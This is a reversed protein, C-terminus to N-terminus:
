AFGSFGSYMDASQDMSLGVADRGNFTFNIHSPDLTGDATANQSVKFLVTATLESQSYYVALPTSPLTVETSPLTMDYNYGDGRGTGGARAINWNFVNQVSNQNMAKDFQFVMSFTHEDGSNALYSSMASLSTKPGQSALFPTFLESVYTATMKPQTKEYLYQSLSAALTADSPSLTNLTSIVENAQDVQGNDAYAYGMESYADLYDHKISVANKFADIAADLNGQKAYVQGLGFNGFPEKPGQQRVMEFQQIADSYQGTGLFGQGLAYRNASSPNYKVALQYQERAEDVRGETTYIKGLQVHMDDRNPAIKLAKGYTDIAAQTNGQTLQTRALYDYANLASDATPAMSISRQFSTIALDYQKASFQELGTNLARLAINEKQATQQSSLTFLSDSTVSFIDM